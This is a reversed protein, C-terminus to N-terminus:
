NNKNVKETKFLNQKKSKKFKEFSKLKDNPNIKIVFKDITNVKTEITKTEEMEALKTKLLSKNIKKDKKQKKTKIKEDKRLSAEEKIKNTNKEKLKRKKNLLNKSEENINDDKQNEESFKIKHLKAKKEKVVGKIKDLKNKKMNIKVKFNEIETILQNEEINNSENEIINSAKEKLLTLQSEIKILSEQFESLEKEEKEEYNKLNQKYLNNFESQSIEAKDLINKKIIFMRQNTKMCRSKLVNESFFTELDKKKPKFQNFIIDKLADKNNEFSTHVVRIIDPLYQDLENFSSILVEHKLVNNLPFEYEEENNDIIDSPPKYLKPNFIRASLEYKLQNIKTEIISNNTSEFTINTSSYKRNLCLVVPKTYAIRMDLLKNINVADNAEIVLKSREDESLYGDSVIWNKEEEEDDDKEEEEKEENEDDKSQVDEGNHENYEEESDLDYDIQIEDKEFPKKGKIINSEKTINSRIFNLNSGEFFISKKNSSKYSFTYNSQFYSRLDNIYQLKSLCNIEPLLKIEKIKTVEVKDFKNVLKEKIKIFVNNIKAQGDPVKNEKKNKTETKIEKEKQISKEKEFASEQNGLKIKKTKKNKIPSKKIEDKVAEDKIQIAEDIQKIVEINQVDNLENTIPIEIDQIVLYESKADIADEELITNNHQNVEEIINTLNNKNQSDFEEKLSVIKEKIITMEDNTLNGENSTQERIKKFLEYFSIFDKKKTLEKDFNNILKQYEASKGKQAKGQDSTNNLKIIKDCISISKKM